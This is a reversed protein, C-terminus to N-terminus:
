CANPRRFHYFCSSKETLQRNANMTHEAGSGCEGGRSHRHEHQHPVVRGRHRRGHRCEVHHGYNKDGQRQPRQKRPPSTPPPLTTRADLRSHTNGVNRSPNRQGRSEGRTRPTTRRTIGLFRRRDIVISKLQPECPGPITVLDRPDRTFCESTAFVYGSGFRRAFALRCAAEAGAVM